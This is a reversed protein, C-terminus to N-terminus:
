RRKMNTFEYLLQLLIFINGYFLRDKRAQDFAIHMEKERNIPSSQNSQDDKRSGDVNDAGSRDRQQRLDEQLRGRQDRGVRCGRRDRRANKARQDRVVRVSLPDATKKRLRMRIGAAKKRAAGAKCMRSPRKLLRASELYAQSPQKYRLRCRKAAPIVTNGAGDDSVDAAADGDGEVLTEACPWPQQTAYHRM